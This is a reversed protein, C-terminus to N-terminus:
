RRGTELYDLAKAYSHKALFHALQRDPQRQALTAVQEMAMRLPGASDTKGDGLQETLKAISRLALTIEETLDTM